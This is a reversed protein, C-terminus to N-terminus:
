IDETPTVTIAIITFYDKCLRIITPKSAGRLLCILDGEQITTVSAQLTWRSEWSEGRGWYELANKSEVAVEQRDQLTIDSTVWTVAALICGKGEIVAIERNTWVSVSVQECLLFKILKRFLNEWSIEYDPALGAAVPNDSSMGLLAYVKDRRETAQRNYYM